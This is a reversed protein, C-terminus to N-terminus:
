CSQMKVGNVSCWTRLVNWTTKEVITSRSEDEKENAKPTSTSHRSERENDRLYTLSYFSSSFILFFINFQKSFSPSFTSSTCTFVIILWITFMRLSKRQRAICGLKVENPKKANERKKKNSAKKRGNEDENCQSYAEKKIRKIHTYTETYMYLSLEHIKISAKKTILYFLWCFNKM